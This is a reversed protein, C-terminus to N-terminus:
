AGPPCVCHWGASGRQKEEDSLVRTLLERFADLQTPTLQELGFDIPHGVFKGYYDECWYGYRLLYQWDRRSRLVGDPLGSQRLLDAHQRKWANWERQDRHATNGDRRFSM